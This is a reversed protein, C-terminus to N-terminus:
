KENLASVKGEKYANLGKASLSLNELKQNQTHRGEALMTIHRKPLKTQLLAEVM